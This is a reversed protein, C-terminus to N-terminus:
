SLFSLCHFLSCPQIAPVVVKALNFQLSLLKQL